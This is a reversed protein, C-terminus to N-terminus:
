PAPTAAPTNATVAASLSATSAEVDSALADIAAATAPDTQTTKLAAIQASLGTLLVNNSAIVTDEAAVDAQLDSLSKMILNGQRLQARVASTLEGLAALTAPGFEHVHHVTVRM